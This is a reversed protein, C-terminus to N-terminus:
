IKAKEAEEYAAKAQQAEGPEMLLHCNGKLVLL